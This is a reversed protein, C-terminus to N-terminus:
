DLVQSEPTHTIIAMLETSGSLTSRPQKRKKHTKFASLLTKSEEWLQCLRRGPPSFQLFGTQLRPTHRDNDRHNFPRTLGWGRALGGVM